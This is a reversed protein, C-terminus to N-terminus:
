ENTPTLSSGYSHPSPTGTNTFLTDPSAKHNADCVTYVPWRNKM